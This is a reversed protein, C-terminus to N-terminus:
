LDKKSDISNLIEDYYYLRRQLELREVQYQEQPMKKYEPYLSQKQSIVENELLHLEHLRESIKQIEAETERILRTQHKKVPQVFAIM